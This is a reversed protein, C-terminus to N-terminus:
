LKVATILLCSKKEVMTKRPINPLGGIFIRTREGATHSDIVFILKRIIM